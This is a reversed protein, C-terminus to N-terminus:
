NLVDRWKKELYPEWILPIIDGLGYTDKVWKKIILSVPYPKLGFLNQIEDWIASSSIYLRNNKLNLEMYVKKDKIFFVSDPYKDTKYKELDGYMENLYYIVGDELQNETIIYKM